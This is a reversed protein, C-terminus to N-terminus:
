FGFSTELLSMNISENGDLVDGDGNKDLYSRKFSYNLIMGWGLKVGVSFGMITNETPEFKFPNPVNRQQYFASASQLSGMPQMLEASASFSKLNSYEFVGNEGNKSNWKDGFMNQYTAGLLFYENIDFDVRGYFGRMRGFEGLYDSKPTVKISTVGNEASTVTARTHEYARDWYEFNFKGDPIVRYEIQWSFISFHNFVGIPAFGYQLEVNEDTVPDITEGIMKAIQSYVSLSTLKSQIIPISLDIAVASIPKPNDLVNLPDNKLRINTDPLSDYYAQNFSGAPLSDWYEHIVDLNYVDPKGDGDRDFENPDSDALGDNDSDLWYKDDYPFSDVINPRGDYDHDQLGLYQNRDTVGTIGLHLGIPIVSSVRGGVVSCNEKFNNVFAQMSISKTQIKADLGIKRFQPYNFANSYRNVLIGYGLTTQNLTVARIYLPEYRTGYQIFYIKDLLTNKIATGNSFDWEDQHIKGNQDIYMVIDLGFKIKWIDITPRLAFQGWIKDNITAFGLVGRLSFPNQAQLGIVCFLILILISNKKM